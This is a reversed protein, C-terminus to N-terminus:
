SPGDKSRAGAPGVSWNPLLHWAPVPRGAQPIQGGEALVHKHSKPGSVKATDHEDQARCGGADGGGSVQEIWRIL